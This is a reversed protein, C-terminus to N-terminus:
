AENDELLQKAEEETMEIIQGHLHNFRTLQDEYDIEEDLMPNNMYFHLLKMRTM